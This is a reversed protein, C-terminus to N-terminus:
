AIDEESEEANFESSLKAGLALGGLGVIAIIGWTQITELNFRKHRKDVKSAEKLVEQMKDIVLMREDTSLSDNKLVDALSTLVIETLHYYKETSMMNSEMAKIFVEKCDKIIEKTNENFCPVQDIIAKIQNRYAGKSRRMLKELHEKKIEEFSEVKLNKLVKNQNM